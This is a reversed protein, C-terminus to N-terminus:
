VTAMRDTLYRMLSNVPRNLDINETGQHRIKIRALYDAAIWAFSLTLVSGADGSEQM